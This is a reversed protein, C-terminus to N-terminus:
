KNENLSKKMNKKIGSYKNELLEVSELFEQQPQITAVSNLDSSRFGAEVNHVGGNLREPQRPM